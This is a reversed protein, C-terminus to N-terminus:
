YQEILVKITHDSLGNLIREVCHMVVKYHKENYDLIAFNLVLAFKVKKHAFCRVVGEELM